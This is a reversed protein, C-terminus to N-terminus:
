PDARDTTRPLGLALWGQGAAPERVTRTDGGTEAGDEGCQPEAAGPNGRSVLEVTTVGAIRGILVM